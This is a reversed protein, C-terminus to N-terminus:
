NLSPQQMIKPTFSKKAFILAHIFIAIGILIATELQSAMNSGAIISESKESLIKGETVQIKSLKRLNEFTEAYLNVLFPNTRETEQGSIDVNFFKGEIDWILILSNKVNQFYTKETETLKTKEYEALIHKIANNNELIKLSLSQTNENTNWNELIIKKQHLHDSLEYIYSEALLRDKYVSSFSDGLESVNKKEIWNNIFVLIFTGFLVLAVRMKQNIAYTWKM